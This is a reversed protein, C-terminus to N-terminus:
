KKTKEDEIQIWLRYANIEKIQVKEGLTVFNRIKSFEIIKVDKKFQNKIDRELEILKLIGLEVQYSHGMQRNLFKVTVSPNERLIELIKRSNSDEIPLKLM